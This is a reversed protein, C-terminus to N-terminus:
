QSPSTQEGTLLEWAVDKAGRAIELEGSQAEKKRCLKKDELYRLVVARKDDVWVAAALRKEIEEM